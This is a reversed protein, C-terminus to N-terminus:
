EIRLRLHLHERWRSWGVTGRRHACYGLSVPTSVARCHRCYRPNGCHDLSNNGCHQEMENLRRRATRGCRNEIQQLSRVGQESESWQTKDLIDHLMLEDNTKYDAKNLRRGPCEGFSGDPKQLEFGILRTYTVAELTALRMSITCAAKGSVSRPRAIMQCLDSTRVVQTMGAGSEGAAVSTM